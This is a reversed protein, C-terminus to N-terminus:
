RIASKLQWMKVKNMAGKIKARVKGNTDIVLTYITTLDDIGLLDMAEEREELYLNITRERGEGEPIGSRMGNDIFWRGLMTFSDMTPLEYYHLEPHEEKLAELEELWPNVLEQHEREFALIAVTPEGSFDQPLTFETDNLNYGELTPFTQAHVGSAVLFIFPLHLLTKM